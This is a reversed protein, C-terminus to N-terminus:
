RNWRRVVEDLNRVNMDEENEVEDVKPNERVAM